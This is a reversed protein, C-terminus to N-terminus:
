DHPAETMPPQEQPIAEVVATDAALDHLSSGSPAFAGVIFTLLALGLVGFFIISPVDISIPSAALFLFAWIWIGQRAISRVVGRGLGIPAQKPSEADGADVVRLGMWRKGPTAGLGGDFWAHYGFTSVIIIAFLIAWLATNPGECMIPSDITCPETSVMGAAQLQRSLVMVAIWQLGFLLCADIMWAAFRNGFLAPGIQAPLPVDSANAEVQEGIEGSFSM